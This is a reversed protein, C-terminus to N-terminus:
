AAPRRLIRPPAPSQFLDLRILFPEVGVVEVRGIGLNYAITDAHATFDLPTQGPLIHLYVQLPPGSSMDVIQPTHVLRGGGISFTTLTLGCGVIIQQLRRALPEHWLPPGSRTQTDHSITM